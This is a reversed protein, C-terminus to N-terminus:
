SLSSFKGHKRALVYLSPLRDPHAFIDMWEIGNSGPFLVAVVDPDTVAKQCFAVAARSSGDALTSISSWLHPKSTHRFIDGMQEDSLRATIAMGNTNCYSNWLPEWGRIVELETRLRWSQGHKQIIPGVWKFFKKNYDIGYIRCEQAFSILPRIVSEHLPHTANEKPRKESQRWLGVCFTKLEALSKPIRIAM